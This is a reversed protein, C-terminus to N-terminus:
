SATAQRLYINLSVVLSDEFPDELNRRSKEVDMSQPYNVSIYLGGIQHQVLIVIHLYNVKSYRDEFPTKRQLRFRNDSSRAVKSRLCYVM